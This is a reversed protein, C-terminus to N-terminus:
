AIAVVSPPYVLSLLLEKFNFGELRSVLRLLTVHWVAKIWLEIARLRRVMYSELGSAKLTRIESEVQWRQRYYSGFKKKSLRRNSIVVRERDTGENLRYAYVSKSVGSLRIEEPEPFWLDRLKEGTDVDVRGQSVACVFDIEQLTLFNLLRNCTLGADCLFVLKPFLTKLEPLLKGLVNILADAPKLSQLLQVHIPIRLNNASLMIVLARHALVVRKSSPDWLRNVGEIKSGTKRLLTTDAILFVPTNHSLSSALKGILGETLNQILPLPDFNSSSLFRSLTSASYTPSTSLTPSYHSFINLLSFYKPEDLM